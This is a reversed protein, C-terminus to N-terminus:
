GVIAEVAEKAERLGAGTRDRYLKIAFIKGKSANLARIEADLGSPKKRAVRKKAVKKVARKKKAAKKRPASTITSAAGGSSSPLEPMPIPIPTDSM